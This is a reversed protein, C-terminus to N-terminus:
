RMSTSADSIQAPTRQPPQGPATPTPPVDRSYGRPLPAPESVTMENVYQCGLNTCRYSTYSHVLAKNHIKVRGPGAVDVAIALYNLPENAEDLFLITTEGESQPTITVSRDTVAQTDVVRPDAVVITKFPKAVTFVEV